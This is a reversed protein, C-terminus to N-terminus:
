VNLKITYKTDVTLVLGESNKTEVFKSNKEYNAHGQKGAAMGGRVSSVGGGGGRSVLALKCSIIAVAADCLRVLPLSYSSNNM